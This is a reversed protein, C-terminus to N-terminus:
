MLKRIQNGSLQKIHKDSHVCISFMLKNFRPPMTYDYDIIEDVLGYEFFCDMM